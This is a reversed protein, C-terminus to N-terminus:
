ENLVRVLDSIEFVIEPLFHARLEAEVHIFDMLMEQM